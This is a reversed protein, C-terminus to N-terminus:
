LHNSQGRNPTALRVVRLWRSRSTIWLSHGPITAQPYIAWRIVWTCNM